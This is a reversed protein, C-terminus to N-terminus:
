RAYLRESSYVEIGRETFRYPRVEEDFDSGRLKLIQIGRITKGGVGYRRLEIVGSTLYDEVDPYSSLISSTILVTVNYKTFIKLLELFQRRYELEDKTTLRIMTIPDIAIRRINKERIREELARMLKQFSEAFEEYHVGEFIHTKKGVPTADIGHFHPDNLDFGFKSMDNKIMDLPEELTVYLVNEGNRVGAMLFHISMTTKGLGPEGKVLYARGPILGGKLMEDLGPIGTSIRM